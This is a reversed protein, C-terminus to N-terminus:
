PPTSCGCPRPSHGAFLAQEAAATYRHAREVADPTLEAARVQATRRVGPPLGSTM